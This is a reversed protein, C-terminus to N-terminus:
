WVTRLAGGDIVFTEGTVYSSVDSLLFAAAKGFEDITGYRGLPIAKEMRSRQEQPTIGDKEAAIKDLEGVRETDIRGPVLNNVRINQSALERSLSKALSTVASRMVNSLLLMEIPEKVSSSTLVLISGGGASRMSPLVARIMRVASMLTLEYSANWHSDDFNDFKGAPPGGANVVLGDIKGFNNLTKETWANISDSNRVDCIFDMVTANTRTRLDAAANRISDTRSCISVNCGEEVLNKAIGYGLGRSAASIMVTKGRFNLDM